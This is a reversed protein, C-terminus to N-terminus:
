LRAALQCRRLLFCGLQGGRDALLAVREGPLLLRDELQQGGQPALLALPDVRVLQQQEVQAFQLRQELLRLLLGRGRPPLPGAVAPPQNGVVQGAFLHQVLQRLGLPPARVVAPRHLRDAVLGALLQFVLRRLQLHEHVLPGHIGAVDLVVLRREHRGGLRRLRDVLAQGPRAEQGRHHQALEAIM